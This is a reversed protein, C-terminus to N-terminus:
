RSRRVVALVCGGVAAAMVLLGAAFVLAALVRDFPLLGLTGLIYNWDHIAAPGGFATQPTFLPLQQARADGIYRSIETLGQGLWFIFFTWVLQRRYFALAGVALPFLIQALTGGLVGIFQGMLGFVQHGAEHILFSLLSLASLLLGILPIQVEPFVTELLGLTLGLAMLAAGVRWAGNALGSRANM